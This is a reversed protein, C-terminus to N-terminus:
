NLIFLSGGNNKFYIKDCLDAIYANIVLNLGDLRQFINFENEIFLVNPHIINCQKTLLIIYEDGYKQIVETLVNENINKPYGNEIGCFSNQNYFFVIKKKYSLLKNKINEININSLLPMLKNHNNCDFFNSIKSLNEININPLTPILEKYKDCNFYIDVGTTNKIDTLIKKIFKDKNILGICNHNEKCLLLWMNIYINNGETSWLTDQKNSINNNDLHINKHGDWIIPHMQLSVNDNLLESFLYMSCAPVIVFNKDTNQEIFKKVIGLTLIQDGNHSPNHLYIKM